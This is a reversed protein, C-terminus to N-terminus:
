FLDFRVDLEVGCMSGLVANAYSGHLNLTYHRHAGGQVTRHVMSCPESSPYMSGAVGTIYRPKIIGCM